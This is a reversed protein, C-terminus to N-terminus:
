RSLAHYVENSRTLWETFMKLGVRMPTGCRCGLLRKAKATDSVWMGSDWPYSPLAHWHVPSSSHTYELVIEVIEQLETQIGTGLNITEGSLPLLPDFDTIVDVVDDVYIFDRVTKPSSLLLPEGLIARRLTNPILRAPEEWPGYVSFLRLTVISTSSRVQAFQACLHSQAAKAIGYIRDPELVDTEKMPTSKRGYESSSGINVFLQVGSGVAAELLNLTGAINTGFILESETQAAYAGYTALHVIVAPRVADVVMRVAAADRIDVTHVALRTLLSNIRWTRAEPRLLLHVDCGDETLRRVVVSGVFGSAGTVLIPGSHSLTGM